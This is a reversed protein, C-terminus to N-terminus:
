RRTTASYNRWANWGDSSRGLSYWIVRNKSIQNQLHGLFGNGWVGLDERDLLYGLHEL